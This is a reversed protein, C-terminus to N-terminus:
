QGTVHQIYQQPNFPKTADFGSGTPAVYGVQGPKPAYMNKGNVQVPVANAPMQDWTSTGTSGDPLRWETIRAADREAQRAARDDAAIKLRTANDAGSIAARSGIDMSNMKERAALETQLRENQAATEKAREEANFAQTDERDGVAWQHELERDGRAMEHLAQVEQLKAQRARETEFGEQLKQLFGSLAGMLGFTLPNIHGKRSM